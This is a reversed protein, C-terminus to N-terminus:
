DGLDSTNEEFELKSEERTVTLQRDSVFDLERLLM